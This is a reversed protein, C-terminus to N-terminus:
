GPAARAGSGPTANDRGDHLPVAAFRLRGVFRRVV